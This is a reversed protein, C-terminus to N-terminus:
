ELGWEPKAKFHFTRSNKDIGTNHKLFFTFSFHFKLIYIYLLIALISFFFFFFYFVIIISFCLMYFM